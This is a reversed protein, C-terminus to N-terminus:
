TLFWHRQMGELFARDTVPYGSATGLVSDIGCRPCLATVLEEGREPIWETVEGPPYVALCYFCGCAVSRALEERNRTCHKHPTELDVATMPCSRRM